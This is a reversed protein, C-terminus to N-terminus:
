FYLLFRTIQLDWMKAQRVIGWGRVWWEVRSTNPKRTKTWRDGRLERQCLLWWSSEAPLPPPSVLRGIEISHRFTSIKLSSNSFWFDCAFLRQKCPLKFKLKYKLFKGELMKKVYVYAHQFCCNKTEKKVSLKFM